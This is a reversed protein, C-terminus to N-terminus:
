CKYRDKLICRTIEWFCYCHKHVSIKMVIFIWKMSNQIIPFCHLLSNVPVCKGGGRQKTAGEMFMQWLECAICYPYIPSPEWIKCGSGENWECHLAAAFFTVLCEMKLYDDEFGILITYENRRFNTPSECILVHILHSWMRWACKLSSVLSFM